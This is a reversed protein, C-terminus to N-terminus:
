NIQIRNGDKDFAPWFGELGLEKLAADAYRRDIWADVDFPKRILKYRYADSVSQRDAAQIYPDFIPSLRTSLHVDKFERRYLSEPLAGASGWIKLVSDRNAEEGAWHAAKLLAKVVRYAHEPYRDAFKQNVLIHGASAALPYKKSSWLIRAKGEASLRILDLTGFIADVQGALFAAKANAPEMNVVRIDKEELGYKELVRNALLQTATGKNFAVRKGRLDGVDKLPSNPPVAIYADARSGSVLVLRTDLGASRGV